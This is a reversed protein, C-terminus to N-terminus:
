MWFARLLRRILKLNRHYRTHEQKRMIELNNLSNNFPNQDKHHVCNLHWDIEPKLGRILERAEKRSEQATM